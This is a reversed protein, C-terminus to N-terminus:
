GKGCAEGTPSGYFFFFFFCIKEVKLFQELRGHTYLAPTTATFETPNHGPNKTTFNKLITLSAM